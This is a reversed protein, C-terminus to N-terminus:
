QGEASVTEIPALPESSGVPARKVSYFVKRLVEWSGLIVWGMLRCVVVLPRWLATSADRNGSNM